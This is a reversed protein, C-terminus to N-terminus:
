LVRAKMNELELTIPWVEFGGIVPIRAAGGVVGLVMTYAGTAEDDSIM